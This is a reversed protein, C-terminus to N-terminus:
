CHSAVTMVGRLSIVDSGKLFIVHVDLLAVLFHKTDLVFMKVDCWVFSVFFVRYFKLHAAETQPTQPKLKM